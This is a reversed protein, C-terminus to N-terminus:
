FQGQLADLPEIWSKPRYRSRYQFIGNVKIIEFIHDPREARYNSNYPIFKIDTNEWGRNMMMQAKYWVAAPVHPERYIDEMENAVYIYEDAVCSWYKSDWSSSM